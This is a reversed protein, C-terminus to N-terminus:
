RGLLSTTPGPRVAAKAVFGALQRISGADLCDMTVRSGFFRGRIGNWYAFKDRKRVWIM